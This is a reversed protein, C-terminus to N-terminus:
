NACWLYPCTGKEIFEIEKKKNKGLTLVSAQKKVLENKDKNKDDIYQKVDAEYDSLQKNLETIKNKPRM